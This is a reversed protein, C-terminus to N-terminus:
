RLARPWISRVALEIFGPTAGKGPQAAAEGAGGGCPRAAASQSSAREPFHGALVRRQHAGRVEPTGESGAAAESGGALGGAETADRTALRAPHRLVRSGACGSAADCLRLWALDPVVEVASASYTDSWHRICQSTVRHSRSSSQLGRLNHCGLSPVDGTHRQAQLSQVVATNLCVIMVHM